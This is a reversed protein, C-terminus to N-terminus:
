GRSQEEGTPEAAGLRRGLEQRLVAYQYTAVVAESVAVSWAVLAPLHLAAFLIILPAGVCAGVVTSAALARERGVPVLCAYGIVASAAVFVFAVGLPISLSFPVQIEGGSLLWAVPRALVAVLIGGILGFGAGAATAHRMRSYSAREGLEPVWGQLFQQVPSFAVNAYKFFRDALAYVPVFGPMFTQISLLPLNVYLGSTLASTVAHRQGGLSSVVSSPRALGRVTAGSGHLVVVADVIVAVLSGCAQVILFAILNRTAAAAALGGLTGLLTPLSDCVFLRWPRSEGVFYWSAGLFPLLYTVAGVVSVAIEGRTLFALIVAAAVVGIVFLYVRAVLSRLYLQPRLQRATSAVTSPGTAGWGFAVFIGVLQSTAQVVALSGWEAAGLSAVLLPITVIGLVTSAAVPVAFGAIRKSISILARPSM